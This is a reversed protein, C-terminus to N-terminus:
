IHILSLTPIVNEAIEGPQHDVNLPIIVQATPVAIGFAFSSQEFQLPTKEFLGLLSADSGVVLGCGTSFVSAILIIAQLWASRCVYM